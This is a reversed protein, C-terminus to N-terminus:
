EDDEDEDDEDDDDEDDDWHETGQTDDIEDDPEASIWAIVDEAKAQAAMLATLTHKHIRALSKADSGQVGVLDLYAGAAETLRFFAEVLDSETYPKTEPEIESMPIEM